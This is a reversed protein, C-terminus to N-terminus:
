ARGGSRRRPQHRRIRKILPRPRRDRIRRPIAMVPRDRVRGPRRGALVALRQLEVPRVRDDRDRVGAIQMERGPHRQLRPDVRGRDARGPAIHDVLGVVVVVQLRARGVRGLGVRAHDCAAAVPVREAARRQRGRGPREQGLGVVAGVDTEVDVAGLDCRGGVGARDGGGGVRERDAAVVDVALVEGPHDVVDADVVDREGGGLDLGVLGGGDARGAGVGCRGRLRARQGRGRDRGALDVEGPAGRGVGDADGAVLELAAATGAAGGERLDRCWGRGAEFVGGDVGGGVVAVADAGGVGGVVEAGVGVGGAGRVGVPSEVGGVCGPVSVAVAIEAPSISRAQPAEM